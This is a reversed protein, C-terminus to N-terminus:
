VCVHRWILGKRIKYIVTIHVGFIDAIRRNTIGDAIMKKIKVVSQEVLKEGGWIMSGVARRGKATMDAMNDRASGLFLHGPNVCAHNDCRHCVFMGDPIDNVFLIHSVRHPLIEGKYRFFGYGHSAPAGMWLWCGSTPEPSVRDLFKGSDNHSAM